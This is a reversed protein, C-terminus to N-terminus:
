ADIDKTDVKVVNKRRCVFFITSLLLAFAILGVWNGVSALSGSFNAGDSGYIGSLNIDLNFVAVLALLIGVIGEGAIMGASYLTGMEACHKKEKESSYKKREIYWRIAGGVM